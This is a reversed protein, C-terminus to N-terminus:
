QQGGTLQQHIQQQEALKQRAYAEIGEDPISKPISVRYGTEPHVAWRVGLSDTETQLPTTEGGVRASLPPQFPTQTPTSQRPVRNVPKAGPGTTGPPRMEGAYYMGREQARQQALGRMQAEAQAEEPLLVLRDNPKAVSGSVGTPASPSAKAAKGAREAVRLPFAQQATAPQPLPGGPALAPSSTSTSTPGFPSTRVPSPKIRDSLKANWGEPPAEGAYPENLRTADREFPAAPREEGAFETNLKTADREVFEPAYNPPPEEVGTRLKFGLPLDLKNPTELQLGAVTPGAAAGLSGVTGGILQGYPRYKPDIRNALAGVAAGGLKGGVLSRLSMEPAMVASVANTVPTPSRQARNIREALKAQNAAHQEAAQVVPQGVRTQEKAGAAREMGQGTKPDAYKVALKNRLAAMQDPTTGDPILLTRGDPLQVTTDPM